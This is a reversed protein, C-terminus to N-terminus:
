SPSMNAFPDNDNDYSGSRSRARMKEADEQIARMLDDQSVESVTKPITDNAAYAAAISDPMNLLTKGAAGASKPTLEREAGKGSGLPDFNNLIDNEKTNTSDAGAPDIVPKQADNHPSPDGLILLDDDM